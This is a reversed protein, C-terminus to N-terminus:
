VASITAVRMLQEYYLTCLSYYMHVDSNNFLKNELQGRSQGTAIMINKQIRCPILKIVPTESRLIFKFTGALLYPKVMQICIELFDDLMFLQQIEIKSM